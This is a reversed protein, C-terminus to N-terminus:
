YHILKHHTTFSTSKINVFYIGPKLFENTYSFSNSTFEKQDILAGHCDYLILTKPDNLCYNDLRITFNNHFPNPFCSLIGNARVEKQHTGTFITDYSRFFRYGTHMLLRGTQEVAFEVADGYPLGGNLVNPFTYGDDYSLAVGGWGGGSDDGAMFVRNDPVVLLDSVITNYPYFEWTQANFDYMHIGWLACAMLKGENNYRLKLFGDQPSPEYFVQWTNGYDTSYYIKATEPSWNYTYRSCAYIVNDRGFLIDTVYEWHDENYLNLVIEWTAGGDTSRLIGYKRGGSFLFISDYGAKICPFEWEQNNFYMRQWSNARDVSKYVGCDGILLLTSDNIIELDKMRLCDLGNNNYHWTACNDDSSIVGGETGNCLVLYARGQSDVEIDRCYYDPFVILQQWFDQAPIYGSIFIMIIIFVYRM